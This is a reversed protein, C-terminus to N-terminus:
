PYSPATLGVGYRRAHCRSWRRWNVALSRASVVSVPQDAATAAGEAGGGPAIRSRAESMEVAVPRFLCATARANEVLEGALM